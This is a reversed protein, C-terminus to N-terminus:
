GPQKKLGMKDFMKKFSEEEPFIIFDGTLSADESELKTKMLLANASTGAIEILPFDIVAGLYDCAYYPVSVLVKLGLLDAMANLYSNAMINGVEMLAIKDFAVNGPTKEAPIGAALFKGLNAAVEKPFFLLISGSLDGSIRFFLGVVPTGAGGLLRPLDSILALSVEPVEVMIKQSVMQSLATAAYGTGINVMEKLADLEIKSFEKIAM